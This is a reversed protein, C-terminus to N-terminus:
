LAFVSYSSNSANLGNVVISLVRERGSLDITFENSYPLDVTGKEGVYRDLMITQTHGDAFKIKVDFIRSKGGNSKLMIKQPSTYRGMSFELPTGGNVIQNVTGLLVWQNTIPAMYGYGDNFTNNDYTTWQGYQTRHDRIVPAPRVPRVPRIQRVPAPTGWSWSANARATVSFGSDAMAASSTGLVALTILASLKSM